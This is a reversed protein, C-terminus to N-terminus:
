QGLLKWLGDEDSIYSRIQEIFGFFQEDSHNRRSLINAATMGLVHRSYGENILLCLIELASSRSDEWLGNIKEIQDWYPIENVQVKDNGMDVLIVDPLLANRIQNLNVKDQYMVRLKPMKNLITKTM